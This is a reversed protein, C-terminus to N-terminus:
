RYWEEGIVAALAARRAGYEAILRALSLRAGYLDDQTELVTTFDGDGVRYRSLASTSAADALPLIESVNRDIRVRTSALQAYAARVQAETRAHLDELERRSAEAELASARTAPEQKRGSWLSVPIGVVATLFPERGGFRFGTGLTTSFDPRGAIQLVRVARDAQEARRRALRMAPSTDPLRVVAADLDPLAAAQLTFAPAGGGDVLLIPSLPLGTGGRLADARVTTATVLAAVEDLREEVRSRDLRARLVDTQPVDGAGYRSEAVSIGIEAVRLRDRWVADATRVYALEFFARAAAVTYDTEVRDLDAGFVASDARALATSADRKGPFPFTQHLGLHLQTMAEADFDFSPVPVSVIGATVSPDPLAGAPQIRETAAGLTFRRAAIASNLSLVESVYERIGPIELAPDQAVALHPQAISAAAIVAATLYREM